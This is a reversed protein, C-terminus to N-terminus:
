SMGGIDLGKFLEIEKDKSAVAAAVLGAKMHCLTQRHFSLGAVNSTEYPDADLDYLEQFGDQQAVLKWRSEYYARQVIREHLGYHEAMLGKRWPPSKDNAIGVLSLGDMDNDNRIGCMELITPALDMSSVLADSVAGPKFDPGRILLPIRMTEEVMLSGKNAVGGNSAVADGHDAMFIVITRDGADVEDIADLVTSLASEVMAAHALAAASMRRWGDRDLGLTDLWYDRYARHHEPRQNLDITANPSTWADVEGEELLGIFPDALIYPPHPGWPDVRLFFPEDGVSRIWDAALRAVFFAEHAEAPGDLLAVGAEFDFWDTTETLAIRSGAPRGSEGSMDIVAAPADLGARNLYARYEPSAYPYGYDPLSFGEFGYEQASRQKDLHWKGFWGCRYGAETLPWHVLWDDLDLGTRGGFRGDNETLGHRHPYIGTLM